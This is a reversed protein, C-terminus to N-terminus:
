SIILGMENRTRQSITKDSNCSPDFLPYQNVCTVSVQGIASDHLQKDQM